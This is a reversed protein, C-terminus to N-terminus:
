HIEARLIDGGGLLFGRGSRRWLRRGSKPFPNSHSLAEELNEIISADLNLSWAGPFRWIGLELAAQRFIVPIYNTKRWHHCVRLKQHKRSPTERSSPAQFKISKGCTTEESVTFVGGCFMGEDKIEWAADKMNAQFDVARPYRNVM